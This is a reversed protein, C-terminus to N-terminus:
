VDPGDGPAQMLETRDEEKVTPQSPAHARNGVVTRMTFLAVPFNSLAEGVRIVPVGESQKPRYHEGTFENVLPADSSGLPGLGIATDAWIQEGIPLEDRDGLLRAYLRPVIAIVAEDELRRAFACLHDSFTGVPTLAVYDGERFLREHRCRVDLARWLVFLKARGDTMSNLLARVETARESDSSAMRVELDRLLADRAGYDVPRRNDPDVLSFDWLETGQYIDPVGPSPRAQSLTQSLSNLM